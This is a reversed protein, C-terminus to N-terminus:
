AYKTSNGYATSSSLFTFAISNVKGAATNWSITAGLNVTQSFTATYSTTGQVAIIHVRRNKAANTFNFVVNGAFVLTIWTEQFNALNITITGTAAPYDLEQSKAFGLTSQMQAVTVDQPAAAGGTINAKFTLTPMNAMKANSVAGAAIVTAGDGTSTVDGSHNPHVYNNAGDAVNLMTRVQAPTLDTQNATTGTNNGKLTGAPVQAAKANTVANAAIVLGVSGAASTVDGTYAPMRAAAITGTADTSSLDVSSKFALSGFDTCYRLIKGAFTMFDDTAAPLIRSAAISLGTLLTSRVRGQQFYLNTGEAVNTTTTTDINQVNSLGVDTKDVVVAGTRGNVSVVAGTAAFDVWNSLVSPDSGLLLFKRNGLDTRLAVDGQQAVLALMAAQSAVSFSDGLAIAPLQSQPLKGDGGLTALGGANGKQATIRADVATSFDTVNASTHTHSSAAKGSLANQVATSVPKNIDSTNDVNGLGIDAKDGSFAIPKLDTLYKVVKGWATIISDTNVPLMRSVATILGTLLTGRVSPAFDSITNAAQTGTHNARNLLFADTQNLTAGPQVNNLKSKDNASMFGANSTTANAHNHVAPAYEGSPQKGNLALQLGQVDGIGIAQGESQELQKLRNEIATFRKHTDYEQMIECPSCPNDAPCPPACPEDPLIDMDTQM